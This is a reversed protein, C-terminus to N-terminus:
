SGKAWAWATLRWHTGVRRLAVTYVSGTQTIQSGRLDFTMSAPVVVYGYDGTVDVHLPAGLTIRYGSAGLHAGEALVDKWWDEAATEGQWVHPSMGDLIQMPDACTAAMAAVDGDNFAAVYELVADMPDDM